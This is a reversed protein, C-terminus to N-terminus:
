PLGCLTVNDPGYGEAIYGKAVMQDRITRSPTYRHNSDARNNWVRYIPIDGAPCAGTTTDPLDMQFVESSELLWANTFKSLTAYCENPNASYFHSDLGAAPNGYERCVPRRGTHGTSGSDYAKFSQQTRQWGPHVGTDLDSIEKPIATIFYHDLAANYFEVVTVITPAPPAAKPTTLVVVSAVSGLKPAAESKVRTDYGLMFLAKIFDDTDIQSNGGPVFPSASPVVGPSAWFDFYSPRATAGSDYGFNVLRADDPVPAWIGFPTGPVTPATFVNGSLATFHGCWMFQYLTQPAGTVNQAWVQWGAPAGVPGDTLQDLYVPATPGGFVPANVFELLHAFDTNNPAGYASTGPPCFSTVLGVAGPGITSQGPITSAFIAATECEAIVQVTETGQSNENRLNVAYGGGANDLRGNLNNFDIGREGADIMPTGLNTVSGPHAPIVQIRLPSKGPPCLIDVSVSQGPPISITQTVQEALAPQPQAAIILALPIVLLGISRARSAIATRNGISDRGNDCPANRRTLGRERMLKM